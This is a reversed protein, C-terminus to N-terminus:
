AQRGRREAAFDSMRHFTMTAAGIMLTLSVLLPLDRALAARWALQGLGPEDCLAEAAITASVAIAVSASALGILQPWVAALLHRFFIVIGPIGFAKAASIYARQAEAEFLNDLVRFVRAFIVLAVVVLAPSRALYCLYALLASPVCLVAGSVATGLFSVVRADWVQVFGALLLALFWALLWGLSLIRVSTLYRQRILDAVPRNLTESFGLDGATARKLFALYGAVLNSPERSKRFADISENSLRSDLEREDAGYGPALRVISTAVFGLIVLMLFLRLTAALLSISKPM